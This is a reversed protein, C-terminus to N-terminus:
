GYAPRVQRLDPEVDPTVAASRHEFGPRNFSSGRLGYDIQKLWGRDRDVVPIGSAILLADFYHRYPMAFDQCWEQANGYVDFLGFDNPMLTARPM